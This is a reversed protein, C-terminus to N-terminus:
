TIDGDVIINDDDDDDHIDDNNPLKVNVREDIM